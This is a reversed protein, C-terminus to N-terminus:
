YLSVGPGLPPHPYPLTHPVKPIANSIYIFYIGLLLFILFNLFFSYNTEGTLEKGLFKSIKMQLHNPIPSLKQSLPLGNM